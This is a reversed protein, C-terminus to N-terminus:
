VRAGASIETRTVLLTRTIMWQQSKSGAIFGALVSAAASTVGIIALSPADLAYTENLFTLSNTLPYFFTGFIVGWVLGAWVYATKVTKLMRGRHIILDALLPPVLGVTLLQALLVSSSHGSLLIANGMWNFLTILSLAWQKESLVSGFFRMTLIAFAVLPAGWIGLIRFPTEPGLPLLLLTVVSVLVGFQAAVLWGLRNDERSIRLLYLIVGIAAISGSVLAGVHTPSWLSALTGVTEIGFKQHWLEDAYGSGVIGAIGVAYVWLSRPLKTRYQDLILLFGGLSVFLGAYIGLHPPIWFSERGVAEHWWADWYVSLTMMM